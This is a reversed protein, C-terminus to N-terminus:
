FKGLYQLYHKNKIFFLITHLELICKCFTERRTRGQLTEQQHSKPVTPININSKVGLNSIRPKASDCCSHCLHEVLDMVVTCQLKAEVSISLILFYSHLLLLSYHVKPTHLFVLMTTYSSNM